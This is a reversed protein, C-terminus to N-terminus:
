EEESESSSEDRIPHPNPHTRIGPRVGTSMGVGAIGLGLGAGTGTGTGVGNVVGQMTGNIDEDAQSELAAELEAVVGGDDDNYDEEEEREEEEEEEEEADDEAEEDEEPDHVHEVLGNVVPQIEEADEDEDSESSEEERAAPSVSSAASRLSIPGNRPDHAFAFRRVKTDPEMEITLGGDDSDENDADTEERPPPSPPRTPQPRAPRPTPKSRPAPRRQHTTPALAPAIAPGPLDAAVPSSTRRRKIFHRYDYPNNPDAGSIDFDNEELLDESTSESDSIGTDLHPYTAALSKSSKVTPTSRLNFTFDTSVRDLTFSQNTPNFILAFSDSPQQMGSYLYASGSDDAKITLNCKNMGSSPSPNIRTEAPTRPLDPKHNDPLLIKTLTLTIFSPLIPWVNFPPTSSHSGKTEM